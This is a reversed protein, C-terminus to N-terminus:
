YSINAHSSNLRTSKRDRMLLAHSQHEFHQEIGLNAGQLAKLLNVGHAMTDHLSAVEKLFATDYCGLNLLAYLAKDVKCGHMVRAVQTTDPGHVGKHGVNRLHCHEVIGEM